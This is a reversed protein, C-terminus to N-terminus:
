NPRAGGGERDDKEVPGIKPVTKPIKGRRPRDRAAPDFPKSPNAGTPAQGVASSATVEGWGRPAAPQPKQRELCASTNAHLDPLLRNGGVPAFGGRHEGCTDIARRRRVGVVGRPCLDPPVSAM